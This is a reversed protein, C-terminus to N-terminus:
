RSVLAKADKLMKRRAAGARIRLQHYRKKIAQFRMVVGPAGTLQKTLSRSEASKAFAVPDSILARLLRERAQPHFGGECFSRSGFMHMTFCAKRRAARHPEPLHDHIANIAKELGALKREVSLASWVGGAHVRYGAWVENQFGIAGHQALHVWWPWDGLELEAWWAPPEKLLGARYVISCTPLYNWALIDDLSGSEKQPPSPYPAREPHGPYVHTIRHAIVTFNPHAELFSVQRALKDPAIWYDDGELLAIYNGRCARLVDRENQFMGVNSKQLLPKVIDPRLAAYRKVIERTKDTSCDEGIVLEIPFGTEQMLVSEIAEGIFNEHNYTIMAVSVVPATQKTQSM